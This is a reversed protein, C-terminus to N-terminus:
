QDSGAAETGPGHPTDDVGGARRRWWVWAGAAVVLVLIWLWVASDAVRQSTPPVPQGTPDPGTRAVSTTTDQMVTAHAHDGEVTGTFPVSLALMLVVLGLALWHRRTSM